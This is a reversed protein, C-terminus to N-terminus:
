RSQKSSISNTAIVLSQKNRALNALSHTSGVVCGVRFTRRPHKMGIPRAACSPSASSGNSWGQRRIYGFITRRLLSTEHATQGRGKRDQPVRLIQAVAARGKPAVAQVHRMATAPPLSYALLPLRHYACISIVRHLCAPMPHSTNHAPQVGATAASSTPNKNKAIQSVVQQAGLPLVVTGKAHHPARTPQDITSRDRLGGNRRCFHAAPCLFVCLM